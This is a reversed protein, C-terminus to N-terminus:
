HGRLRVTFEAELTPLNPPALRKIKSFEDRAKAKQGDYILCRVFEIRAELSAPDLRVWADCQERAEAWAKLDMLLRVLNSRHDAQWPNVGVARRWYSSALEWRQLSQAVIAAGMLAVERTPARRLVEEYVTLAEEPRNMLALAQGKAELARIDDPDDKLANDLLSAARKGSGTPDVGRQNLLQIMIQHALAIGLDRQVEKSNADQRDQYFSVFTPDRRTRGAPPASEKERRALIRHDTSANHAIDASRYRPMHCDICSDDKNQRRREAPDVSCKKQKEHCNLCRERYHAVRQESGVQQHPDHCSVCGLKREGQSGNETSRQYCHSLQMQEVHTVAKRPENADVAEVFVSWFEQLPLGPRFDFPGRGRRVVRAEGVLHCQECVAARVDLQLHKPNVITYDAGTKSDKHGPEAIHHGGPGHCRECGIAYGDFLPEKFRNVFGDIPETHNTHCFMCAAPVPRGSRWGGPFGPSVDWIHKQTFWSVPMEFLFGDHASLYSHGRTGSGLVYDIPTPSDYVIDGKADRGIQHQILRDGEPAVYLQTGLAEFPNHAATDFRLDALTQAVPLVSRGMPHKRYSEAKDQHCLACRADGVYAVDPHINQFPGQYTLRPDAPVPAPSSPHASADSSARQRGFWIGVGILMAVVVGIATGLTGISIRGRAAPLSSTKEVSTDAPKRPDHDM